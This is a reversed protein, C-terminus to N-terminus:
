AEARRTLRLYAAELSIEGPGLLAPAAADAAVCGERLVVIRDALAEAEDLHHTTFLVTRGRGAEVRIAQWLQQRSEVDLGSTPEDLLALRPEPAFALAVALRRKQGGSLGGVQRRAVELLGFRALIEERPRRSPHHALVFEVLEIPRLTPPFSTEQPTAAIASRASRSGPAFGLVHMSGGDARRLGLLLELLTTKGAGNPGLLAVVEGEAVTLDVGRLAEIAGYRKRIGRALIATAPAAATSGLACVNYVCHAATAATLSGTAAFLTGFGLGTGLHVAVGRRGQAPYHALAFGAASAAVAAGTGVVPALRALAFARWIAEEGAGVGVGAALVVPAPLLVRRAASGALATFLLYGVVFGAALASAPRLPPRLPDTPALTLLLVGLLPFGAAACYQGRTV